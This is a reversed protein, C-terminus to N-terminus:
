SCCWRLSRISSASDWSRFVGNVALTPTLVTPIPTPEWMQVMVNLPESDRALLYLCSQRYRGRCRDAWRRRRQVEVVLCSSRDRGRFSDIHATRIRRGADCDRAAGAPVASPHRQIGRAPVAREVGTDADVRCSHCLPVVGARDGEAGRSRQALLYLRRQAYGARCLRRNMGSWRFQGKVILSSPDVGAAFSIVILLVFGSLPTAIVLLVLPSQPHSLSFGAPPFVGNVILTPTSGVPTVFSLWVQMSVNLAPSGLSETDIVNFTDSRGVSLTPGPVRVEMYSSSGEAGADCLMDTNVLPAVAPKVATAFLGPPLQSATLGPEPLVGPDACTVTVEVPKDVPWVYLPVIVIVPEPVVGDEISTGTSNDM